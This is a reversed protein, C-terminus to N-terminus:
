KGYLGSCSVPAFTKDIFALFVKQQQVEKPTPHQNQASLRFLGEWLTIQDARSKNGIACAALQSQHIASAQNAAHVSLFSVTITLAVDLVFSICLIILLLRDRRTRKVLKDIMEGASAALKNEDSM